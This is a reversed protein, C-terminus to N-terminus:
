WDLWGFGRGRMGGRRWIRGARRKPWMDCFAKQEDTLLNRIALRHSVRKKHMNTKLKSIEDIKANIDKMDPEKTILLLKLDLHMKQLKIRLPAMEEQFKLRMDDIKTYQETTLDPIREYFRAMGLKAARAKMPRKQALLNGISGIIILVIIAAYISRRQMIQRWLKLLLLLKQSKETKM